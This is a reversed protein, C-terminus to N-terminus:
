QKDVERRAIERKRGRESEGLCTWRSTPNAQRAIRKLADREAAIWDNVAQLDADSLPADMHVPYVYYWPPMDGDAIEESIKGLKKLRQAATYNGWTSFNLEARGEHVDYSVVWSAPAINSYWPWVTENSHCGYCSRKIIAKVPAPANLDATVPPNDKHIRFAQAVILFGVM